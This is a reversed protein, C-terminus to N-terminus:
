NINYSMRKFGLKQAEKIRKDIKKKIYMSIEEFKDYIGNKSMTM